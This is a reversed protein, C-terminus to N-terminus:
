TVTRFRIDPINIFTIAWAFLLVVSGLALLLLETGNKLIFPFDTSSIWAFLKM